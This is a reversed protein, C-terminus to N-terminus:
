SDRKLHLTRTGGNMWREDKYFTYIKSTTIKTPIEGNKLGYCHFVTLKRDTTTDTWQDAQM